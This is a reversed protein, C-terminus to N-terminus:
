LITLHEISHALRPISQDGSAIMRREDTLLEAATFGRATYWFDAGCNNRPGNKRLPLFHRTGDASV